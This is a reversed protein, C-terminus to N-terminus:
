CGGELQALISKELGLFSIIILGAGCTMNQLGLGTVTVMVRKEATLGWFLTIEKVFGGLTLACQLSM